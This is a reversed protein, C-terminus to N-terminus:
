FNSNEREKEKTQKCQIQFDDIKFTIHLKKAILLSKNINFSVLLKTMSM